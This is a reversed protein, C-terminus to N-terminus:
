IREKFNLKKRIMIISSVIMGYWVRYTRRVNYILSGREKSIPRLFWELGLRGLIPHIKGAYGAVFDFTGGLGIGVHANIKKRNKYMWTEGSGGGFCVVLIDPKKENILKIAEKRTEKQREGPYVEIIHLNPYM